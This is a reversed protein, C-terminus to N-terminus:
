HREFVKTTGDKNLLLVDYREFEGGSWEPRAWPRLRIDAEPVFSVL